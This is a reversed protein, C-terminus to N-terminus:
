LNKIIELAEGQAKLCQAESGLGLSTSSSSGGSSNSFVLKAKDCKVQTARCDKANVETSGAGLMSAYLKGNSCTISLGTETSPTGPKQEIPPNQPKLPAAPGPGTELSPQLIVTASPKIEVEGADTEGAKTERCIKIPSVFTPVNIVYVKDRSDECIRYITKNKEDKYDLSILYSGYEIKLELDKASGKTFSKPVELPSPLTRTMKVELTKWDPAGAEVKLEEVTFSSVQSGNMDPNKKSKGCSVAVLGVLLFVSSKMVVGCCFPFPTAGQM